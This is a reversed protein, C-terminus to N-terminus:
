NVRGLKYWVNQRRQMRQLVDYPTSTFYLKEAMDPPFFGPFRQHMYRTYRSRLFFIPNARSLVDYNARAMDQM